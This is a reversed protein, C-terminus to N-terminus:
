VSINAQMYQPPPPLIFIGTLSPHVCFLIPEPPPHPDTFISYWHKFKHEVVGTQTTRNWYDSESVM